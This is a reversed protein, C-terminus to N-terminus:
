IACWSVKFGSKMTEPCFRPLYGSLHDDVIHKVEEPYSICCHTYIIKWQQQSQSYGLM